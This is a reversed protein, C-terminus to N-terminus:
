ELRTIKQVLGFVTDQYAENAEHDEDTWAKHDKPLKPREPVPQGSIKIIVEYIDLGDKALLSGADAPDADKGRFAECFSELLEADLVGKDYAAITVAEFALYAANNGMPKTPESKNFVKITAIIRKSASSIWDKTIPGHAHITSKLAGSIGREFKSRNNLDIKKV